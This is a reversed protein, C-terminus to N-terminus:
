FSPYTRSTVAGTAPDYDLDAPYSLDAIGVEALSGPWSGRDARWAQVEKRAAALDLQVKVRDPVSTIARATTGDQALPQERPAPPEPPPARDSCALSLLLLASPLHTRM